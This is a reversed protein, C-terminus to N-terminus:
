GRVFVKRGDPYTHWTGKVGKKSTGAKSTYSPTPKIPQGTAQKYQAQKTAASAQLYDQLGTGLREEQTTYDQGTYLHGLNLADLQRQFSGADGPGGLARTRETNLAVEATKSGEMFRNFGTDLQKQELGQNEKRKAASAAAVGGGFQGAQRAAANQTGQLRQYNRNIADTNTQYDQQGYQRQKLLDSLRTGFDQQAYGKQRGLEEVDIGYQSGERSRGTKIDEINQDYGTQAARDQFDLSPDYTGPPPAWPTRSATNAKRQSEPISHYSGDSWRYPYQKSKKQAM